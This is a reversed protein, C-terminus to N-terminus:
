FLLNGKPYRILHIYLMILLVNEKGLFHHIQFLLYRLNNPKHNLFIKFDTMIIPAIFIITRNRILARFSETSIVMNKLIM